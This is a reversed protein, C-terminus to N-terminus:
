VIANILFILLILICLMKLMNVIPHKNINLINTDKAQNIKKHEKVPSASLENSIYFKYAYKRNYFVFTIDYKEKKSSNKEGNNLFSLIKVSKERTAHESSLPTVKWIISIIYYLAVAISAGTCLPIIGVYKNYNLIIASLSGIIISITCIVLLVINCSTRHKLCEDCIPIYMTSKGNRYRNSPYKIKEKNSTPKMCCTCYPPMILYKDPADVLYEYDDQKKLQEKLEVNNTCGLIEDISNGDKEWPFFRKIGIEGNSESVIIRYVDNKSMRKVEIVLSATDSSMRLVKDESVIHISTGGYEPIKENSLWDFKEFFQGDISRRCIFKDSCIGNSEYWYIWHNFVTATTYNEDHVIKGTLKDKNLYSCIEGKGLYVISM